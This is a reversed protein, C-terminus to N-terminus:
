VARWCIASLGSCASATQAAALAARVDAVSAEVVEGVIQRQDAPSRVPKGAGRRAKGGLLPAAVYNVRASREIASQLDALTPKDNM